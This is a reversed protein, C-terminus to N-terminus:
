ASAHSRNPLYNVGSAELLGPDEPPYMAELLM